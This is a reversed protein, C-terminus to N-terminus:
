SSNLQHIVFVFEYNLNARLDSDFDSHILIRAYFHLISSEDECENLHSFILNSKIKNKVFKKM